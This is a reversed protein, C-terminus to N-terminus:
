QNLVQEQTKIFTTSDKEPVFLIIEYGQQFKHPSNTNLYHFSYNVKHNSPKNTCCQTGKEESFHHHHIIQLITDFLVYFWKYNIRIMTKYITKYISDHVSFFFVTETHLAKNTGPTIRYIDMCVTEFGVANLFWM